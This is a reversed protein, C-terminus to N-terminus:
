WGARFSTRQLDSPRRLQFRSRNRRIAAGVTGFSVVLPLNIALDKQLKAWEERGVHNLHERVKVLGENM